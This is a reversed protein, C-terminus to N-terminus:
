CPHPRAPRCSRVGREDAPRRRRRHRAVAVGPAPGPHGRRSGETSLQRNRGVILEDVEAPSLMPLDAVPTGPAQAAHKLLHAVCRLFRDAWPPDFLDTSYDLALTTDQGSQSDSTCTSTSNRPRPSSCGAADLHRWAPGPWAAHAVRLRFQVQRAARARALPGARAGRRAERVPAAPAVACRRPTGSGASCGPSARITPWRCNAAPRHERVPRRDPRVRHPHPWGGPHRGCPRAPARLAVARGRLRHPVAMFMTANAAQAVETLRRPRRTTSPSAPARPAPPSAPLGPRDTPLALVQPAGKLQERWYSLQRDLEEGRM